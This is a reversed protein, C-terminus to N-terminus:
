RALNYVTARKSVPADERGRWHARVPVRRERVTGRHITRYYAVSNPDEPDGVPYRVSIPHGTGQHIPDRYEPRLTVLIVEPAIGARRAQKTETRTLQAPAKRTTPIRESLMSFLASFLRFLSPVYETPTEGRIVIRRKVHRDIPNTKTGVPWEPWFPGSNTMSWRGLSQKARAYAPNTRVEPMVVEEYVQDPERSTDNWMSIIVGQYHLNDKKLYFTVPSWTIVHIVETRGVADWVRVPEEFVVFGHEVPPFGLQQEDALSDARDWLAKTMQGEIRYARAVTLSNHLSRGFRVEDNEDSPTHIDNYQADIVSQVILQGTRDRIDSQMRLVDAPEIIV